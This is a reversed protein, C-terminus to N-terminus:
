HSSRQGCVASNNLGTQYGDAGPDSSSGYVGFVGLNLFKGLYGFAGSGAGTGCQADPNPNQAISDYRAAGPDSNGQGASNGYSPASQAFAAGSFALAASFCITTMIRKM